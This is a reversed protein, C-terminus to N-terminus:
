QLWKLLERNIGSEDVYDMIKIFISKLDKDKYKYGNFISNHGNVIDDFDTNEQIHMSLQRRILPILVDNMWFIDNLIINGASYLICLYLEILQNLEAKETAIAYCFAKFCDNDSAKENALRLISEYNRNENILEFANVFYQIYPNDSLFTNDKFSIIVSNVIECHQLLYFSCKLLLYIGINTSKNVDLEKIVNAILEAAYNYEGIEWLKYIYYVKQIAMHTLLPTIMNCNDKDRLSEICENAKENYGYYDLILAFVYFISNYRLDINSSNFKNSDSENWLMGMYPAIYEENGNLVKPPNHDTLDNAIYALCHLSIAILHENGNLDHKIFYHYLIEISNIADFVDGSSYYAIVREFHLKFFFEETFVNNTSGNVKEIAQDIVIKAIDYKKNHFYAIACNVLCFAKDFDGLYALRSTSKNYCDEAFLYDKNDSALLGMKYCLHALVISETNEELQQNYIKKATEYDHKNIGNLHIRKILCGIHMSKWSHEIAFCDMQDIIKEIVEIGEYNIKDRVMDFAHIFFDTYESDEIQMVWEDDAQKQIWKFWREIDPICECKFMSIVILGTFLDDGIFSRISVFDVTELLGLAIDLSDMMIMGSALVILEKIQNNEKSLSNLEDIAFTNKRGNQADYWIQYLRIGAKSFNSMDEPLHTESWMKVFLLSDNYEIHESCLSQMAILYVQAAEDLREASILNSVLRLIDIQNLQKNVLISDAIISSINKKMDTSLNENAANKLLGNATVTNDVSLWIGKLENIREGILSIRPEINAIKELDEKNVEFGIYALRYLLERTEKDKITEHLIYDIQNNLGDIDLKLLRTLVESSLDWNDSKLYNLIIIIAAPKRGCLEKIFGSTKNQLLHTPADLASMLELTDDDSFDKISGSIYDKVNLHLISDNNEYCGFSVIKIGHDIMKKILTILRKSDLDSILLKPFNDIIVIKNDLGKLAPNLAEKELIGITNLNKGISYDLWVSNPCRKKLLLSVYTKGSWVSGVIHYWSCSDLQKIIDSIYDNRYCIFRDNLEPPTFASNIIIPIYEVNHKIDKFVISEFRDELLDTKEQIATINSKLDYLSVDLHKKISNVAAVVEMDDIECIQISVTKVIFDLCEFISKEDVSHEPYEKLFSNVRKQCYARISEDNWIADSSLCDSLFNNVFKNTHIYGDLHLFYKESEYKRCVSARIKESTRKIKRKLKIKKIIGIGKGLFFSLLEEYLWEM